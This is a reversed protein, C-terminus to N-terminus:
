INSKSTGNQDGPRFNYAESKAIKKKYVGLNTKM